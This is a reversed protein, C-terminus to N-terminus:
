RHQEDFGAVPQKRDGESLTTVHDLIFRQFSIKAQSDHEVGDGRVLELADIRLGDLLGGHVGPTIDAPLGGQRCETEIDAAVEQSRHSARGQVLRQRVTKCSGVGKSDRSAHLEVSEVFQGAAEQFRM